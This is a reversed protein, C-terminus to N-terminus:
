NSFCPFLEGHARKEHGKGDERERGSESEHAGSLGLLFFGHAYLFDGRDQEDLFDLRDQGEPDLTETEGFRDFHRVPVFEAEGCKLFSSGFHHVLGVGAHFFVRRWGHGRFGAFPGGIKVQFDVVELGDERGHLVNFITM